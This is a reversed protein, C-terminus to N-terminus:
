VRAAAPPAQGVSPLKAALVTSGGCAAQAAEDQLILALAGTLAALLYWTSRYLDHTGYGVLLLFLITYNAAKPYACLVPDECREVLLRRLRSNARVMKVVFGIFTILGVLGLEGIIKFFLSHADFWQKRGPGPWFKMGNAANYGEIGIGTLPNSLFMHWGGNWSMLRLQYSNAEVASQMSLASMYRAKVSTPLAAWLVVFLVGLSGLVQVRRKSRLAYILVTAMLMDFATRTGTMLMAWLCALAALGAGLRSRWKGHAVYIGLLPLAAALTNAMSDPANTDSTLGVLRDMTGDFYHFAPSGLYFNVMGTIALYALLATYVWLFAKARKRTDVLNLILFALLITKGFNICESLSKSLWFALPVSVVTAAYFALLWGGVPSLRLRRGGAFYRVVILIGFTKEVHLTGLIHFVQEPQLVNFVLLGLVGIFPDALGWLCLVVAAIMAPLTILM